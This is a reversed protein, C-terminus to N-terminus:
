SLPIGLSEWRRHGIGLNELGNVVSSQFGAGLERLTVTRVLCPQSARNLKPLKLIVKPTHGGVEKPFSFGERVKLAELQLREEDIPIFENNPRTCAFLALVATHGSPKSFGPVVGEPM